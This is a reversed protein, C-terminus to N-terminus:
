SSTKSVREAHAQSQQEKERLLSEVLQNAALKDAEYKLKLEHHSVKLNDVEGQLVNNKEKEGQLDASFKETSVLHAVKLEEYDAHLDKKKKQRTTDNVKQAMKFASLTEENCYKELRELERRTDKGRNIYMEKLSKQKALNEKTEQLEQVMLIRENKEKCCHQRERELLETLQGVDRRLRELEMEKGNGQQRFYVTRNNGRAETTAANEKAPQRLCLSNSSNSNSSQRQSEAITNYLSKNETELERQRNETQQKLALVDTQDRQSLEDTSVRLKEQEQQLLTTKDKEQQLEATFKEQSAKYAVQLKKYEEEMSKQNSLQSRLDDLETQFKIDKEFAAQQLVAIEETAKQCLAEQEARLTWILQQDQSVREAHAQSQQEKERLLSEVLQNAALKDAEYKLKLEHHSVKLNDVEGQLVNNKEKEGQLDASFKETSVLHAVKLEEYDAHLDKKKKQRTTDNVKQAMKFASLTEENCYKELRELERRTDKGRNIYMEKLSKQKALNEKTEQLEQIMLIRENKEKCCHQRERELLETLQGVDRRLRELEMEKGNGQQRFYVTRNNGRAETAQQMKKPQSEAITNYLSKNETELERQRNETQQKLALVDTQDRQSLEDTSVRLKEQEQQLLTTKDKEQQLEATFKEQSAKYAVQLKKYEEEMSKQNSLQSRLDDLETQFKIDKEFAAQQLVAIEETAKQCLAEQEARLTWILQQDQSVREAHAQSQQEKERLLSEVLQNAALKDAEYKLKLEHHSVKLNDVEGQLVNNKEKEGQLDASFKETSVLHAVKLEEYDAHLDKKKKQRTTDNVKQAMKFASLTEENCYKELRELERRTDKGRNIYMEKLSKQKALNEKTEQLEQIMLIRENKEKCCHQRERELLETLQGVDRRLRELEMEKGNGQQRFYVTRNNGRAETAQQMKKPQSEAITNYLSKNETELERQRNETQQKLALVDTQDRQSLEDTSVRLKEQEQQLLTTKDKEQQLEATFKEQSAKYAVQLKKYEEEMSKQNSLQSRLDDLETQFKIDKEFAAQQLVAIEETAKQCLAEQEARLTWILQQDQSVREAHAQSQQEKERLLSEVLQNAALKDAEYKLKLEHHSVKLNDVEGQLVNNKEKEGQLDASFKETSVLHAVKLEEYDAHLDKKKKQRTTDNVKQAMKFASLTEENCYKELRELERRTDKGRNIYMEKLSKQKALNEKTEQLEQIMLIRENKEKCCHQRERELLETLQGVDRRLRELEMEKGNGQQRFYVTRNNGRAETAQQMKKPQSEAITNYLSKNETELERHRNETQQKLALVDTQDRQSLEDTSVRLKEQEQQLLTTKDKEQQLEATFKEQSAKYAVQLKKYEEEMSKQNSLQSQPELETQFKIDKEFAAQQRVAIEETAKQCLAEQEARLTWILQQDQSVREAHAQSQQEKERLLSEVLQNAALKDAEYKLKLEHHSVKLNDVEGQLVNNKEKEGQLDASFKETSVLHAVKLEEYDAHLDKKKKQRTTDNVKQAMKFASLTEENCYKELRELERRTDKGRNIYM